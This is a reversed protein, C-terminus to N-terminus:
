KDKFEASGVPEVEEGGSSALRKVLTLLLPLVIMPHPSLQYSRQVTCCHLLTVVSRGLVSLVLLFYFGVYCAVPAAAIVPAGDDGM